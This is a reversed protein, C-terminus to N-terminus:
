RSEAMGDDDDDDDDDGDGVDFRDVGDDDADDGTRVVTGDAAFQVEVENGDVRWEAEYETRDAFRIEEVETVPNEGARALIAERVPLPVKDLTIRHERGWESKAATEGSAGPKPPTYQPGCALGIIVVAACCPVLVNRTM